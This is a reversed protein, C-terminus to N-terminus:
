GKRDAAYNYDYGYGYGYGERRVDFKTLIAGVVNSQVTRLRALAYRAQTARTRGSELVFVTADMASAVIPADAIGMVPPGDVIIIDFRPQLTELTARLDSSLM